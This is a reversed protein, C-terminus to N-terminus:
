IIDSPEQWCQAAVKRTHSTNVMGRQTYLRGGKKEERASYIGKESEKREYSTMKKWKKESVKVIEQSM